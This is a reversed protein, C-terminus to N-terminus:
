RQLLADALETRYYLVRRGARARTVLGSGRLVALHNGVGGITVGLQAALQSPGSPVDLLRLLAARTTGILQDLHEPAQHPAATWLRSSGRAPYILAFTPPGLSLWQVGYANPVFVLGAGGPHQHPGEMKRLEIGHGAYWRLDPGIDEVAHSWGHTVLKGARHLVDTELMASVTSWDPAVIETWIIRLADAVRDGLRGGSLERGMGYHDFQARVVADPTARVAALEQEIGTGADMPARAFFDPVGRCMRLVTTLERLARHRGLLASYRKRSLAIWPAVGSAPVHGDLALWAGVTNAVPSIAFRSTAVDQPGVAILV